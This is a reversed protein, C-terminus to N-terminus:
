IAKGLYLYKTDIGRALKNTIICLITARVM